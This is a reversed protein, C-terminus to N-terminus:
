IPAEWTEDRGITATASTEVLRKWNRNVALCLYLGVDLFSIIKGLTFYIIYLCIPRNTTQRERVDDRWWISVSEANSARQTPFWGTVPPNGECLGIVRLKSTKKSTRRFLRSLLCDLHPHNSVGHRENRRWQLSRMFSLYQTCKIHRQWRVICYRMEPVWRLLVESKM